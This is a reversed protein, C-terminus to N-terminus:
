GWPYNKREVCYSGHPTETLDVTFELKEDGEQVYPEVVRISYEGPPLSVIEYQLDMLCLCHCMGQIEKEIITIVNDEIRIETDIQPCCNFGANVHTMKLMGTGDYQYEICDQNSAQSIKTGDNQLQKCATISVLRGTPNEDGPGAPDKDNCNSSPLLILLALFLFLCHRGTLELHTKQM